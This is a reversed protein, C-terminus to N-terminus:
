RVSNKASTRELKRMRKRWEWFKVGRARAVACAANKLVLCGDNASRWLEAKTAHEERLSVANSPLDLARKERAAM